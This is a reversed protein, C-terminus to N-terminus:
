RVFPVLHALSSTGSEQIFHVHSLEGILCCVLCRLNLSIGLSQFVCLSILSLVVCLFAGIAELSSTLSSLGHWLPHVYTADGGGGGDFADHLAGLSHFETM